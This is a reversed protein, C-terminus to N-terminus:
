ANMLRWSGHKQTPRPKNPENTPPRNVHMLMKRPKCQVIRLTRTRKDEATRKTQLDAIQENIIELQKTANKIASALPGATHLLIATQQPDCGLRDIERFFRRIEPAKDSTLNIGISHLYAKDTIYETLKLDTQHEQELRNLFTQEQNTLNELRTTLESVRASLKQAQGKLQTRQQTLSYRDHQLSTRETRLADITMSPNEERERAYDVIAAAFQEPDFDSPRNAFVNTVAVDVENVNIHQSVLKEALPVVRFCDEPTLKRSTIAARLIAVQKAEELGYQQLVAWLGTKQIESELEKMHVHVTGLAVGSAKANENTKLGLFYGDVIKVAKSLDIAKGM